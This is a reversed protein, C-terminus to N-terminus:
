QQAAAGAITRLQMQRIHQKLTQIQKLFQRDYLGKGDVGQQYDLSSFPQLESEDHVPCTIVTVLAHSVLILPNNM